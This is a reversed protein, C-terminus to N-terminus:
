RQAVKIMGSILTTKARGGATHTVADGIIHRPVNESFIPRFDSLFKVQWEAGALDREKNTETELFSLQERWGGDTGSRTCPNGSQRERAVLVHEAKEIGM